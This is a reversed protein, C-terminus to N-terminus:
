GVCGVVSLVLRPIRAFTLSLAETLFEVAREYDRLAESVIGLHLNLIGVAPYRRGLQCIALVREQALRRQIQASHEAPPSDDLASRRRFFVALDLESRAVAQVAAVTTEEAGTPPGARLLAQLETE